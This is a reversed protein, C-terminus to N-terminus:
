EKCEDLRASMMDCLHLIWAMKTQPTVPSGWERHGHHALIAHTVSQIEQQTMETGLSVGEWVMASRSVHGITDRHPTPGWVGDKKEYDWMKGVDHFLCALFLLRWHYGCVFHSAGECVEFTHQALGGDRYHHKGPKSSAPWLGFREDDLVTAAIPLCGINLAMDRLREVHNMM